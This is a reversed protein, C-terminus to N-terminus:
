ISVLEEAENIYDEYIRPIIDIEIIADGVCDFTKQNIADIFVEPMTGLARMYTLSDEGRLVLRILELEEPTLVEKLALWPSAAVTRDDQKPISDSVAVPDITSEKVVESVPEAAEEVTLKEQVELAEIRIREINLPLIELEVRNQKRLYAQVTERLVAPLDIKMQKLMREQRKSIKPVSESLKYKFKRALRLQRECEKLLYTIIEIGDERIVPIRCSWNRRRCSYSEVPSLIVSRDREDERRIFLARAFPIWLREKESVNFLETEFNKKREEYAQRIRRLIDYFCLRLDDKTEDTYFISQRIPYKGLAAYYDFSNSEDSTFIYLEPYHEELKRKEIFEHFSFPLHDGYYIFFDKVWSFIYDELSPETAQYAEYVDMIRELADEEKDFDILNLCEYLYLYVYSLSTEEIQGRRVKTRWSFYTRLQAVNMLQYYPYVEHFSVPKDFDDEFDAMFRAQKLFSDARFNPLGDSRYALKRMARFREVILDSQRRLVNERAPIPQELPIATLPEDIGLPLMEVESFPDNRAPDDPLAFAAQENKDTEVSVKSRAPIPIAQYDDSATM